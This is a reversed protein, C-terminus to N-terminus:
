ADEGAEFREYFCAFGELGVLALLRLWRVFVVDARSADGVLLGHSRRWRWAAFALRVVRGRRGRWWVLAGRGGCGGM